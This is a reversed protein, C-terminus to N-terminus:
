SSAEQLSLLSSLTSSLSSLTASQSTLTSSLSSLYTNSQEQQEVGTLSILQQTFQTTDTPSLPDQNQLETTLM